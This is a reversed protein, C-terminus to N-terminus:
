SRILLLAVISTKEIAVLNLSPLADFGISRRLRNRPGITRRTYDSNEETACECNKGTILDWKSNTCFHSFLKDCHVGSIRDYKIYLSVNSLFIVSPLFRRLDSTGRTLQM